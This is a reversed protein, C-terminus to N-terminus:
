RHPVDRRVRISFQRATRMVAAAPAQYDAGPFTKRPLEPADSMAAPNLRGLTKSIVLTANARQCMEYTVSALPNM